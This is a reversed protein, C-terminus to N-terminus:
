GSGRPAAPREKSQRHESAAHGAALHALTYGALIAVMPIAPMHYRDGVVIVAHVATFYLWLWVPPSLLAQWASRKRALLVIGALAALLVAYWYGTSLAKLVTLGTDGVMPRLSQVNWAVGITERNHLRIAKRLTRPIFAFPDAEFEALALSRMYESREVEGMGRTEAPLPTYEGDAGAHNGMWFNPWFNTSMFVEAGFVRENRASWPAVLAVISVTIIAAKVLPEFAQRPRGLLAAIALAAPILLAIPRLYTAAIFALASGVLFALGAPSARVRDWMAIGLVTMAMFHLESAPVTTYQIALPWIAFLCAALLGASEGFWRRGLDYIGWLALISSIMNVLLVGIITENGFVFFTGAYLAATGVAWYAGPHEPRFGYVGHQYINTALTMYAASDSVPAVPVFLMWILRLGVALALVLPFSLRRTVDSLIARM